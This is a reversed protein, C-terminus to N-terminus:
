SGSDPQICNALVAPNAIQVVKTFTSSRNVVQPVNTGCTSLVNKVQWVEANPDPPLDTCLGATSPIAPNRLGDVLTWTTEGGSLYYQICCSPYPSGDYYSAQIPFDATNGFWWMGSAPQVCKKDCNQGLTYSASILLLAVLCWVCQGRCM